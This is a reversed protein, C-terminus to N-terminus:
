NCTYKIRNAVSIWQMLINIKMTLWPSSSPTSPLSILLHAQCPFQSNGPGLSFHPWDPPLPHLQVRGARSPSLYAISILCLCVVHFLILFFLGNPRSPPPDAPLSPAAIQNHLKKFLAIASTRITKKREPSYIMHHQVMQTLVRGVHQQDDRWLCNIRQWGILM